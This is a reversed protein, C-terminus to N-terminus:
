VNKQILSTIFTQYSMGEQSAAAKLRLLNRESIRVNVTWQKAFTDKAIKAYQKSVAETYVSTYEGRNIAQNLKKEETTLQLPKKM